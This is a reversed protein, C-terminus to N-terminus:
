IAQKWRELTIFLSYQAGHLKRFGTVYNSITVEM